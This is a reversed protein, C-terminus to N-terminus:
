SDPLCHRAFEVARAAVAVGLCLGALLQPEGHRLALLKQAGVLRWRESVDRSARGVHVGSLDGRQLLDDRVVAIGRTRREAVTLELRKPERLALHILQ